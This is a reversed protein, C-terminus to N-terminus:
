DKSPSLKKSQWFISIRFCTLRSIGFLRSFHRVMMVLSDKQELCENVENLAYLQMRHKLREFRVRSASSLSVGLALQSQTMGLQPQSSDLSQLGSYVVNSNQLSALSIERKGLVRDILLDYAAYLRKLVALQRGLHHLRDVHGLEAKVLM